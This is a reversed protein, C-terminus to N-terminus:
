GGAIPRYHKGAPVPPVPSGHELSRGCDGCVEKGPHKLFRASDEGAEVVLNEEALAGTPDDGTVARGGLPFRGSAPDASGRPSAALSLSREREVAQHRGGAEVESGGVVDELHGTVADEVSNVPETVNQEVGVRGAAGVGVPEGSM